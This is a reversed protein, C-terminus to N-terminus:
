LVKKLNTLDLVNESIPLIMFMKCSTKLGPGDKQETFDHVDQQKSYKQLRNSIALSMKQRTFIFEARFPWHCRGTRHYCLCERARHSWPHRGTQHSWLCRRARHFWPHRKPQHSMKKSSSILTTKRDILDHSWSYRQAQQSPHRGAQHSRPCKQARNSWPHTGASLSRLCRQAGHFWPRGGACHPWSWRQSCSLIVSM